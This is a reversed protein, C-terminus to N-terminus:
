WDVRRLLARLRYGDVRKKFLAAVRLPRVASCHAMFHGLEVLARLSANADGECGSCGLVM